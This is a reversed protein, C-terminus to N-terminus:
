AAFAKAPPSTHPGLLGIVRLIYIYIYIICQGVEHRAPHPTLLRDIGRPIRPFLPEYGEIAKFKIVAYGVYHERDFESKPEGQWCSTRVTVSPKFFFVRLAVHPTM